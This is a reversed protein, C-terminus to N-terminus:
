ALHHFDAPATKILVQIIMFVFPIGRRCAIHGLAQAVHSKGVGVPGLMFINERKDIYACNALQKIKKAPIQPNFSFDFGEIPRKKTTGHIQTGYELACWERVKM